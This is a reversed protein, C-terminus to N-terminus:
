EASFKLVMTHTYTEGPKLEASPFSPQNPADPFGETELCLATRKEYKAGGKGDAAGKLFNGGYFQIAPQDTSVELVRGSKPDKLRAALRLGEKPTLVWAHDYGGGLKLAEFDAEVRDGIATPKTFDMPTDAVPALEGTPILGANTPLYKDADLMLLHDNISTSPDGSLNWYTHHVINLVTPADTTAKVEWKLENDDNLTYTVKTTLTGPYGEEGDKSVYTLTVSNNADNAEGTWMVKNFGVNGGHLHCPIDGPANNTALTYEKGEITFKGDKIRNGFRGVTAGFYDNGPSLYGAANDFGHTVDALKGAKDPVEMSVLTAGLDSIKARLGNKNTLTFIKAERGDPLKGFNDVPIKSTASSSGSEKCGVLCAAAMLTMLPAAKM